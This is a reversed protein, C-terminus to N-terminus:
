PLLDAVAISAHPLEVPSISDTPILTQATAYRFGRPATSDAIPNRFVKLDRGNVDLSWYEPVGAAAYLNAKLSRDYALSSDAVEVVLVAKRPFSKLYDKPSGPVVALDPVPDTDLGTPLGTQIRVWYGPSFAGKLVYDAMGVVADHPPNPAPMELVEGDLLIVCRGEFMGYEGMDHFEDCTWRLTKPSFAVAPPSLTAASM